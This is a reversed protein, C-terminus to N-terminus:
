LAIFLKVKQQFCNDQKYNTCYMCIIKLLSGIEKKLYLPKKM